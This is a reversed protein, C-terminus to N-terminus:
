MANSSRRVAANVSATVREFERAESLLAHGHHHLQEAM